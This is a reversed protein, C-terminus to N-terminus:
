AAGKRVEVHPCKSMDILMHVGFADLIRRLADADKVVLIAEDQAPSRYCFALGTYAFEGEAVKRQGLTCVPKASM